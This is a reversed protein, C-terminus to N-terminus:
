RVASVHVGSVCSPWVVVPGSCRWLAAGLFRLVALRRTGGGPLVLCGWFLVLLRLAHCRHRSRFGLRDVRMQTTEIAACVGVCLCLCVSVFVFM